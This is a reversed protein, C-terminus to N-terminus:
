SASSPAATEPKQAERKRQAAALARAAKDKWDSKKRYKQLWAVMEEAKEMEELGLYALTLYFHAEGDWDFRMNGTRHFYELAYRADAYRHQALKDKGTQLITSFARALNRWYPFVAGFAGLFMVSKGIDPSLHLTSAAFTIVVVVLFFTLLSRFTFRWIIGRLQAEVAPDLTTIAAPPAGHAKNPKRRPKTSTRAM